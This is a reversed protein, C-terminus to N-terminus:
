GERFINGVQWRSLNLLKAITVFTNGQRRLKRIRRHLHRPRAHGSEVVSKRRNKTPTLIQLNDIADNSKDGDVHDAEEHRGLIRGHKVSLKYKAMTITTRRLAYGALPVLCVYWRGEKKHWIRYGKYGVFPHKLIKAMVVLQALAVLVAASVTLNSSV